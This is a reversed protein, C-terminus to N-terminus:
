SWRGKYPGEPENRIFRDSPSVFYGHTHRRRMNQKPSNSWASEPAQYIGGTVGQLIRQSAPPTHPSTAVMMIKGGLSAAAGYRYFTRAFRPYRGLFEKGKKSMTLWDDWLPTFGSAIGAAGHWFDRRLGIRRPVKWSM